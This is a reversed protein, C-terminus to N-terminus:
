YEEGKEYDRDNDYDNESEPWHEEIDEAISSFNENIWKTIKAKLFDNEKSFIPEINEVEVYDVGKDYGVYGWYEYSGIGDNSICYDVKCTITPDSEEIEETDEHWGIDEPLEVDYYIYSSKSM